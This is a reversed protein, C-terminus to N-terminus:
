FDDDDSEDLDQMSKLIHIVGVEKGELQQRIVTPDGALVLSLNNATFYTEVSHFIAGVGISEARVIADQYYSPRQHLAAAAAAATEELTSFQQAIQLGSYARFAQMAKPGPIGLKIYNLAQGLQSIADGTSRSEVSGFIMVEGALSDTRYSGSFGYSVNKSERLEHELYSAIKGAVLQTAIADPHDKSVNPLGATIVTQNLGPYPLIYTRRQKKPPVAAMATIQALTLAPAAAIPLTAFERKVWAYGVAPAIRGAIVVGLNKTVAHKQYAEQLQELKLRKVGSAVSRRSRHLPHGPPYMSQALVYLSASKPQAFDHRLEAILQLQVRAFTAASWSPERLAKALAAIAITADDAHVQVSVSVGDRDVHLEPETGLADLTECLLPNQTFLLRYLLGLLGQESPTEAAFGTFFQLRIHVLPLYSDQHVQVILGSPLVRKELVPIRVVVASRPTPVNNRWREFGVGTLLLAALLYKSASV